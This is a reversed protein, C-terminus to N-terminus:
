KRVPQMKEKAWGSFEELSCSGTSSKNNGDVVRYILMHKRPDCHAYEDIIQRVSWALGPKANTYFAGLEVQLHEIREDMLLTQARDVVQKIQEANVDMLMDVADMAQEIHRLQIANEKGKAAATTAYRMLGLPYRRWSFGYNFVVAVVSIVLCNLLVPMIVYNLGLGRIAEGGMVAALATAGGPPHVCRALHMVLIALGVALGAALIINDFRLACAVGVLASLTNGAFLAWPQSLPGHPVAFLLVAAAGMSPLIAMAGDHGSVYQSVMYVLAIAIGAGLVSIAKETSSTPHQIGLLNLVSRKM